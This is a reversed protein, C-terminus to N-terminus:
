CDLVIKGTVGSQNLPVHADAANELPFRAGIVPAIRGEKLLELCSSKHIQVGSAQNGESRTEFM